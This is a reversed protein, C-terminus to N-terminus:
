PFKILLYPDSEPAKTILLFGFTELSKGGPNSSTYSISKLEELKLELLLTELLLKDELLWLLKLLTEDILLILELLEDLWLLLLLKLLKDETLLTEDTLLM